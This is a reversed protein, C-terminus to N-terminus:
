VLVAIESMHQRAMINAELVMTLDVHIYLPQFYSFILTLVWDVHLRVLFVNWIIHNTQKLRGITKFTDEVDARRKLKTDKKPSPPM